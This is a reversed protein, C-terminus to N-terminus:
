TREHSTFDDFLEIYGCVPCRFLKTSYARGNEMVVMVPPQGEAPQGIPSLTVGTLSWLAPNEQLEGHGYRCTPTVIM